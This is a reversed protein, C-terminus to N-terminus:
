AATGFKGVDRSQRVQQKLKRLTSRKRRAGHGRDEDPQMDRLTELVMLDALFKRLRLGTRNRVFDDVEEDCAASAAIHLGRLVDRDIVGGNDDFDDESTAFNDRMSSTRTPINPPANAQSPVGRSSRCCVGIHDPDFSPRPQDAKIEPRSRSEESVGRNLKQTPLSQHQRQYSNQDSQLNVRRAPPNQTTQARKVRLPRLYDPEQPSPDGDYHGGNYGQYYTDDRPETTLPRQSGTPKSRHCYDCARRETDRAGPSKQRPSRPSSDARPRANNGPNYRQPLILPTPKPPPTPPIDRPM